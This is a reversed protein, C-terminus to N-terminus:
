SFEEGQRLGIIDNLENFGDNFALDNGHFYFSLDGVHIILFYLFSEGIRDEEATLVPIPYSSVTFYCVNERPANVGRSMLNISFLVLQM